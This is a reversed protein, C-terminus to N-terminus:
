GQPGIYLVKGNRAIAYVPRGAYVAASEAAATTAVAKGDTDRVDRKDAVALTVTRDDPLRLVLMWGTSSEIKSPYYSVVLGAYLELPHGLPHGKNFMDQNLFFQCLLTAAEARTLRGWPNFKNPTQGEVVGGAQATGIYGVWDKPAGPVRRSIYDYMALNATRASADDVSVSPHGFATAPRTMGTAPAFVKDFVQVLLKVALGRPITRDPDLGVYWLWLRSDTVQPQAVPMGPCDTRCGPVTPGEVDASVLGAPMAKRLEEMFGFSDDGYPVDAFTPAQTRYAQATLIQNWGLAARATAKVLDGYKIAADPNFTSGPDAGSGSNWWGLAWSM